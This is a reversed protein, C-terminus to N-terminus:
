SGSDRTPTEPARRVTVLQLAVIHACRTKAPCTCWWGDAPSHGVRYLHGNGRITASAQDRAVATIMLRGEVLYRRGKAEVSERAM